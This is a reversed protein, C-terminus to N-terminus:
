TFKHKSTAKSIIEFVQKPIKRDYESPYTIQLNAAIEPIQHVFPLRGTYLIWILLGLSYIDSSPLILNTFKLVQEPPSFILAYASFIESKLKKNFITCFDNFAQNGIKHVLRM